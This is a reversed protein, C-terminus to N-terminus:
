VQTKDIRNILTNGQDATIQGADVYKDVLQKQLEAIQKQLDNIQQKQVDTFGTIAAFAPVAFAM